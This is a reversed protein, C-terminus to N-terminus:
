ASTAPTSPRIPTMTCTGRFVSALVLFSSLISSSYVLYEDLVCLDNGQKTALLLRYLLKRFELYCPAQGTPIYEVGTETDSIIQLLENDSPYVESM